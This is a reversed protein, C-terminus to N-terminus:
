VKLTREKFVHFKSGLLNTHSTMGPAAKEPHTIPQRAPMKSQTTARRETAHEKIDEKFISYTFKPPLIPGVGQVCSIVQVCAIVLSLPFYISRGTRSRMPNSDSLNTFSNAHKTSRKRPTHNVPQSKPRAYNSRISQNKKM